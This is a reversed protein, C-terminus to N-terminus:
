CAPINSSKRGLSPGIFTSYTVKRVDLLKENVGATNYSYVPELTVGDSCPRMLFALDAPEPVKKWGMNLFGPHQTPSIKCVCVGPISFCRSRISNEMM